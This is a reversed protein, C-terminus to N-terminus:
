KSTKQTGTFGEQPCYTMFDDFDKFHFIINPAASFPSLNLKKKENKIQDPTMSLTNFRRMADIGIKDIKREPVFNVFAVNVFRCLDVIEGAVKSSPYYQLETNGFVNFDCYVIRLNPITKSTIAERQYTNLKASLPKVCNTHISKTFHVFFSPEAGVRATMNQTMYVEEDKLLSLKFNEVWRYRIPYNDYGMNRIVDDRAIAPDPLIPIIPSVSLNYKSVLEAEIGKAIDTKDIKTVRSPFALHLYDLHNHEPDFMKEDMKSHFYYNKDPFLLSIEELRFKRYANVLKQKEDKDIKDNKLKRHFGSFFSEVELGVGSSFQQYTIKQALKDDIILVLLEFRQALEPPVSVSKVKHEPYLKELEKLFLGIILTANFGYQMDMEVDWIPDNNMSFAPIDCFMHTSSLAYHYLVHTGLYPKDVNGRKSFSFFAAGDRIQAGISMFTEPADDTVSLYIADKVPSNPYEEQKFRGLTFQM